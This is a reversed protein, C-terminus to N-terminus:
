LLMKRLAWTTHRVARAKQADVLMLAETVLDLHHLLERMVMGSRRELQQRIPSHDRRLQAMAQQEVQLAVRLLDEEEASPRPSSSLTLSDCSCQRICKSQPSPERESSM